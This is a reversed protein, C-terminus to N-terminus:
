AGTGAAPLRVDLPQGPKLVARAADDPEAEVMFVLKSRSENSYIVPPTYEAQPSVWRVRATLGAACGDCALAVPSGVAVRPLVAQPVFFRVKLARPPLLAVVPAGAAVWEGRRYLVDFVQADAPARRARQGERWRALEADALAGRSEAAAAAVEDSRAADQALARQAQLERLRATDRDHAAQLEDLRLASVFGQDVLRRQRDLAATSTALAARAQAIQADIAGIEQPRRGKRLNAEQAAARQARAAAGSATLSEADTDLAFLAQGQRVRDGRKVDLQQLTGASGAAVYVLDAEAYGTMLGADPAPSCAALLMPPLLLSLSKM